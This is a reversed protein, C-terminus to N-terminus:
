RKSGNQIKPQKGSPMDGGRHTYPHESLNAPPIITRINVRGPLHGRWHVWTYERGIGELEEIDFLFYMSKNMKSKGALIGDNQLADFRGRFALCSLKLRWPDACRRVCCSGERRRRWKTRNIWPGLVDMLIRWFKWRNWGLSSSPYRASRNPPPFEPFKIAFKYTKPHCLLSKSILQVIM